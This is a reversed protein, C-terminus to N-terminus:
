KIYQIAEIKEKCFVYVKNYFMNGEGIKEQDGGFDCLNAYIEGIDDSNRNKTRECLVYLSFAAMDSVHSHLEPSEAEIGSYFVNLSTQALISNPSYEAIVRNVVYSYLLLKHHWERVTCATEKGLPGNEIHIIADSFTKGLERAKEINGSNKQKLFQRAAEEASDTAVATFTDPAIKIDDDDNRYM